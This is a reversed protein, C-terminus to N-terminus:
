LTCLLNRLCVYRQLASSALSVRMLVGIVGHDKYDYTYLLDAGHDLLITKVARQDKLTVMRIIKGHQYYWSITRDGFRLTLAKSEASVVVGSQTRCQAIDNVLLQLVTHCALYCHLSRISTSGRVDFIAVVLSAIVISLFSCSALYILCEILTIGAKM